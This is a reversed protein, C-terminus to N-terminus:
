RTVRLRHVRGVPAGFLGDAGGDNRTLDAAPIAGPPSGAGLVSQGGHDAIAAPAVEVQMDDARRRAVVVVM